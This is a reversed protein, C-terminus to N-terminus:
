QEAVKVVYGAMMRIFAIPSSAQYYPTAIEGEISVEALVPEAPQPKLEVLRSLKFGVVEIGGSRRCHENCAQFILRTGVNKDGGVGDQGPVVPIVLPDSGPGVKM